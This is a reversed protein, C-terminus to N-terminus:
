TLLYLLFLLFLRLITSSTFYYPGLRDMSIVEEGAALLIVTILFFFFYLGGFIGCALSSHSVIFCILRVPAEHNHEEHHETDGRQRVEPDDEEITAM